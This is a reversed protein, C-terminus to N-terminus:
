AVNKHNKWCCSKVILNAWCVKATIIIITIIGSQGQWEEFLIQSQLETITWAYWGQEFIQEVESIPAQLSMILKEMGPFTLNLLILDKWHFAWEHSSVHNQLSFYSYCWSWSYLLVKATFPSIYGWKCNSKTVSQWIFSIGKKHTKSPFNAEIEAFADCVLVLISLTHLTYNQILTTKWDRYRSGLIYPTCYITM